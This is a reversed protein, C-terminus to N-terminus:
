LFQISNKPQSFDSHYLFFMYFCPMKSSVQKKKWGRGSPIALWEDIITKHLKSGGCEKRIKQFVRHRVGTVRKPQGKLTQPLPSCPSFLFFFECKQVLAHLPCVCKKWICAVPNTLILEALIALCAHLWLIGFYHWLIGFDSLEICIDIMYRSESKSYDTTFNTDPLGPSGERSNSVIDQSWGPCLELNSWTPAHGVKRDSRLM